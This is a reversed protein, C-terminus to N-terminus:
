AGRVADAVLPWIQPDSAYPAYFTIRSAHAGWRERLQRGVARPEGVAAFAHLVADDIADGMEAWRGRKSLRTLEPQLDAWGHLELVPRYSPTSAYFAIREKTGAIAAALEREDRGTCTFVPGALPLGALPKGAKARGRELAPLTIERLYRETTFPHFLFGDGVEGAIETMAPGVGALFVPPPGFPHPEPVFMPTMLTHTYFEGRFALAAGNRWASWIARLALVFERMRRAPQSWPMSFRREIHAQIQSGLGLVFRGRSYFALDWAANAVTMPSRALAIAVGTGVAIRATSSAAQLAQLFPEHATEFVWAGDLGRAELEAAAQATAAIGSPLEGDVLLAM